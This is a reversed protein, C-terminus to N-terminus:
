KITKLFLKAQGLFKPEFFLKMKYNKDMDTSSLYIYLADKIKVIIDSIYENKKDGMSKIFILEGKNQIKEPTLEHIDKYEINSLFGYKKIFEDEVKFYPSKTNEM